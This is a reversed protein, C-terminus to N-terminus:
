GPHLSCYNVNWLTEILVPNVVSKIEQPYDNVNWLTEILVIFGISLVSVRILNVNWLTEILVERM